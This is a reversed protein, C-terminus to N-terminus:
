GILKKLNALLADDAVYEKGGTSRNKARHVGYIGPHSINVYNAGWSKLDHLDQATFSPVVQKNEVKQWINAGRLYTTGRWLDIKHRIATRGNQGQQGSDLLPVVPLDFILVSLLLVISLPSKMM